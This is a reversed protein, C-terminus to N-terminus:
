VLSNTGPQTAMNTVSIPASIQCQNRIFIAAWIAIWILIMGMMLIGYRWSGFEGGLGMILCVFIYTMNSGLSYFSLLISRFRPPISDQFKSYLLINVISAFFYAMGLVWLCWLSYFISFTVFLGGVLFIVAYIVYDNVKKFKYAINQGLVSCGLLIFPMIGVYEVSLGISIGIPSLYDDLYIFNTVMLSLVMLMLICPVRNCIKFGIRLLGRLNIKKAPASYTRQTLRMNLVFLMSVVLAAISAGTVWEYGMLMLLSGFASLAVGAAQAAYKRGLVRTYATRHNRAALEDYMLADMAVEAFAYQMGWLFMGIAFGIYTPWLCWLLFGICKLTQGVIIASRRGIRNTIWTIPMQTMLIAIPYLMLLWSLRIDSVGRSQMFVAYVPTLLTMKNFFGFGCVNIIFRRLSSRKGM